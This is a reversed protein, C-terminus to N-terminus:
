RSCQTISVQSNLVNALLCREDTDFFARVNLATM